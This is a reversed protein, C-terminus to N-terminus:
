LNNGRLSLLNESTIIFLDCSIVTKILQWFSIEAMFSFGSFDITSKLNSSRDLYPKM